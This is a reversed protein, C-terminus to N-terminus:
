ETARKFQEDLSVPQYDNLYKDLKKAQWMFKYDSLEDALRTKEDDMLTSRELKSEIFAWYGHTLPEQFGMAEHSLDIANQLHNSDTSKPLYKTHRKVVTKRFMEGEDTVWTSSKVKGDLYAKYSESRARIELIDQKSMIEIHETNDKAIIARSYVGIIDGRDKGTLFYPTHKKIPKDYGLSIEIDDGEYILQSSISSVGGADTVLKILGVYSPDLCVEMQRSGSNYRPILYAEKKVPNLTLGVQAVNLIAKLASEPTCKQLYPNKQAIQVAFSVEKDFHKEDLGSQSLFSQKVTKLHDKSIINM